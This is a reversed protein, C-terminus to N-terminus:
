LTGGEPWNRWHTNPDSTPRYHGPDGTELVRALQQFTTSGSPLEDEVLDPHHWEELQLLQTMEPRVSVRREAPTALVEDRAVDALYRCLEFVRIESPDELEIGRAVYDEPRPLPVSRHRLRVETAGDRVLELSEEHQWGGEEIPHIFRSDNHPKNILHREYAERSVYNEPRDRDYLRSAFTHIHTDPLGARPSYGFVEIVMAWDEPSRYLSLRTGALYVYGNDLM